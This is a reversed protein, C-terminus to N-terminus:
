VCRVSVHLLGSARRLNDIWWAEDLAQEQQLAQEAPLHTQIVLRVDPRGTLKHDSWDGELRLASRPFFSRAQAATEEVLPGLDPHLADLLAPTLDQLALGRWVPPQASAALTPRHTPSTLPATM